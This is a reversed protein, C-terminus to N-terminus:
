WEAGRNSIDVAVAGLISCNSNWSGDVRELQRTQEGPMSSIVSFSSVNLPRLDISCRHCGPAVLGVDLGM